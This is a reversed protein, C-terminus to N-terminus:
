REEDEQPQERDVDECRAVTGPGPVVVGPVVGGPVQHVGTVRPEVPRRHWPEFAVRLRGRPDPGVVFPAGDDPAEGAHHGDRERGVPDRLGVVHRHHGCREGCRHRRDPGQHEHEQRQASQDRDDWASTAQTTRPSAVGTHVMAASARHDWVTHMRPMAPIAQAEAVRRHHSTPTKPPTVRQPRSCAASTTATRPRTTPQARRDGLIVATTPSQLRAQRPKNEAHVFHHFPDQFGISEYPLSTM